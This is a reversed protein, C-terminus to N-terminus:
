LAIAKQETVQDINKIKWREFLKILFKVAECVQWRVLMVAGLPL